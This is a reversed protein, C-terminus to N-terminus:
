NSRYITSRSTGRELRPPPVMLLNMFNNAFASSRASRGRIWIQPRFPPMAAGRRVTELGSCHLGPVRLDCSRRVYVSIYKGESRLHSRLRVDHFALGFEFLTRRRDTRQM